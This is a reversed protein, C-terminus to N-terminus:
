GMINQSCTKQSLTLNSAGSSFDTHLQIKYHLCFIHMQMFRPFRKGLNSKLLADFIKKVTFMDCPGYFIM